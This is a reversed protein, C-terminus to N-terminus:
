DLQLHDERASESRTAERNRYRATMQLGATMDCAPSIVPNSCFAVPSPFSVGARSEARKSCKNHSNSQRPSRSGVRAM